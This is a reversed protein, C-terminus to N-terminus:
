LKQGFFCYKGSNFDFTQPEKRNNESSSPRSRVPAIKKKVSLRYNKHGLCCVAFVHRCFKERFFLHLVRSRIRGLLALFRRLSILSGFSRICRRLITFGTFALSGSLFLIQQRRRKCAVQRRFFGICIFQRKRVVRCAGIELVGQRNHFATSQGVNNVAHLGHLATNKVRHLPQM